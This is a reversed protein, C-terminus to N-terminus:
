EFEVKTIEIKVEFARSTKREENCFLYKAMPNYINSIQYNTYKVGNLQKSEVKEAKESLKFSTSNAFEFTIVPLMKACGKSTSIYEVIQDYLLTANTGHALGGFFSYFRLEVKGFKDEGNILIKCLINIYKKMVDQELLFNIRLIGTALNNWVFQFLLEISFQYALRNCSQVYFQKATGFLLQILEPNFIYKHFDCWKFSCNFLKNLYYYVIKIHEKSKVMKPLQLIHCGTDYGKNLCIVTNRAADQPLYLPISTKLGNKWISIGYFEERALKGQFDNIFDRFYLNTQKISCLQQYNFCKFIDLKTETPLSYFM